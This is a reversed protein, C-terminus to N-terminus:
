KPSPNFLLINGEKQILYEKRILGAKAERYSQLPLGIEEKIATPSLWLNKNAKEYGRQLLLYMFLRYESYTLRKFAEVIIEKKCYLFNDNKEPKVKEDVESFDIQLQNAYNM